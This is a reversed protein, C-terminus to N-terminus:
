ITRKLKQLTLQKVKLFAIKKEHNYEKDLILQVTARDENEIAISLEENFLGKFALFENINM